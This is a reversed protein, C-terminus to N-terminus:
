DLLKNLIMSSILLLILIILVPLYLLCRCSTGQKSIGEEFNELNKGLAQSWDHGVTNDPFSARLGSQSGLPNQVGNRRRWINELERNQM